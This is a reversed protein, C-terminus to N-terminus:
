WHDLWLISWLEQNAYQPCDDTHATDGPDQTWHIHVYDVTWKRTKTM